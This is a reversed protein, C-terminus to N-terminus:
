DRPLPSLAWTEVAPLAHDRSIIYACTQELTKFDRYHIGGTAALIGAIFRLVPSNALDITYIEKLRPHRVYKLTVISQLPPYSLLNEAQVIM